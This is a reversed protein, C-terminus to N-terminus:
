LVDRCDANEVMDGVLLGKWVAICTMGGVRGVMTGGGDTGTGGPIGWYWVKWCVELWKGPSLLRLFDFFDSNAPCAVANDDEEAFLSPVLDLLECVWEGDWPRRTFNFM